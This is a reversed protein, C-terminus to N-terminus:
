TRIGCCSITCTAACNWSEPRPWPTTPCPRRLRASLPRPMWNDYPTGLGNPGVRGPIEARGQTSAPHGAVRGAVANCALGVTAAVVAGVAWARLLRARTGPVAQLLWAFAGFYVAGSLLLMLTIETALRHFQSAAASVILAAAFVALPLDLATRAWPARRYRGLSWLAGLFLLGFGITSYGLSYGLVTVLAAFSTYRAFGWPEDAPRHWQGERFRASAHIV